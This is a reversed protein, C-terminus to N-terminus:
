FEVDIQQPLSQNFTYIFRFPAGSTLLGRVDYKLEADIRVRMRFSAVEGDVPEAQVLFRQDARIRHRSEYPLTTIATDSDIVVARMNGQESLGAVFKTSTIVRVPEGAGGEIIVHAEEPVRSELLGCGAGGLAAASAVLMACTPRMM